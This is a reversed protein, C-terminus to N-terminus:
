KRVIRKNGRGSKDGGRTPIFNSTQSDDIFCQPMSDMASAMQVASKRINDIFSDVERNTEVNRAMNILEETSYQENALHIVDDVTVNIPYIIKDDEIILINEGFDSKLKELHHVASKGLIGGKAIILIKEIEM